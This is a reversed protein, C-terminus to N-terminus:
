SRFSDDQGCMVWSWAGWLLGPFRKFGQSYNRYLQLGEKESDSLRMTAIDPDWDEAM